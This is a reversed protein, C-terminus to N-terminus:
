PVFRSRYESSDLFAKVMDANVFNGNFQNLKSLWFDFGTHDTDPSSNPDRRLYGYYQMLVFATNFESTEFDSDEAVARLVEGRTKLGATLDHVLQNREAPSISSGTNNRLLDVYQSPTLSAPLTSKTRARAEFAEFFARKNNELVSEWGAQGM